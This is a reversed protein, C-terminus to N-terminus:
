RLNDPQQDDYHQPKEDNSDRLQEGEHPGALQHVIGCRRDVVGPGVQM